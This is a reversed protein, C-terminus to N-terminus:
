GTLDNLTSRRAHLAFTIGLLVSLISLGLLPWLWVPMFRYIVEFKGSPVVIGLSNVDVPFTPVERGNVFVRWDKSWSQGIRLVAPREIEFLYGGESPGRYIQSISRRYCDNSCRLLPGRADVLGTDTSLSTGGMLFATREMNKPRRTRVYLFSEGLFAPNEWIELTGFKRIPGVLGDFQQNGPLVATDTLVWRIGQRALDQARVPFTIQSRVTLDPNFDGKVLGKMSSVWRDQVWPGGDYGDISRLGQLLYTNPRLGSLLYEKDDFKDYTLSLVKGNETDLGDFLRDGLTTFSQENRDFRSPGRSAAPLCEFLVLGVLIVVRAVPQRKMAFLGLVVLTAVIWWIMLPRRVDLFIPSLLSLPVGVTVALIWNRSRRSNFRNTIEAVGFGALIAIAFVTLILWRGPVRASGFGPILRYGLRFPWWAPGVAFLSSSVVCFVLSTAHWYRRGRILAYAGITALLIAIVGVGAIAEAPGAAAIPLRSFPDGALALNLRPRDIVFANNYLTAISRKGTISSGSMLSYTANLQVSTMGLILFTVAVLDRLARWSWADFLLGVCCLAAMIGILYIYQPHGGLILMSGATVTILIGGFRRRQLLLVIGALLWPAWSIAILQDFSLTKLAVYSSCVIIAATVGGSPSPLRFCHRILFVCGLSLLLLHGAVSFQIATNVDLFTLPVHPLYLGQTGMRGLFPVGGFMSPNWIPIQGRKWSEFVFGLNPGTYALTDFGFVFRGLSLFPRAVVAWSVIALVWDSGLGIRRLLKRFM